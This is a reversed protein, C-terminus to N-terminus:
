ILITGLAHCLVEERAHCLASDVWAEASVVFRAMNEKGYSQPCGIQTHGTATMSGATM